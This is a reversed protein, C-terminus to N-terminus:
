AVKWKRKGMMDQFSYPVNVAIIVPAGQAINQKVAELDVDYNRGSKTLRNYGRIRYRMAESLQGQTPRKNCSYEDYPFKSFHM